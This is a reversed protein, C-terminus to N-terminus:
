SLPGLSETDEGALEALDQRLGVDAQHHTLLEALEIKSMWLRRESLGPTTDSVGDTVRGVVDGTHSRPERSDITAVEGLYVM